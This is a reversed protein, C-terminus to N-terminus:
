LRGPSKRHAQLSSPEWIWPLQQHMSRQACDTTVAHGSFMLKPLASPSLCRSCVQPTHCKIDLAPQQFFITNM